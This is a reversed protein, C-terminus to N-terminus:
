ATCNSSNVMLLSCFILAVTSIKPANDWTLQDETWVDPSTGFDNSVLHVTGGDGGGQSVYLRLRVPGLAVNSGSVLFKLYSDINNRSHGRVNLMPYSGTNQSPRKSDVSADETPNYNIDAAYSPDSLGLIGVLTLVTVATLCRVGRIRFTGRAGGYQESSCMALEVSM